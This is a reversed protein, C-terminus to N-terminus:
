QKQIGGEPDLEEKQENDFDLPSNSSSSAEDAQKAVEDKVEDKLDTVDSKLGQASEKVENLKDSVNDKNTLDSVKGKADNFMSMAKERNEPKRLYSVAGVVLAGILAKGAKSNNAM